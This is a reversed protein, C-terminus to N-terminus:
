KKSKKKKSGKKLKKPRKALKKKMIGAIKKKIKGEKFSIKAAKVSHKKPELSDSPGLELISLIEPRFNYHKSFDSQFDAHMTLYNKRASTFVSFSEYNRSVKDLEEENVCSAVSSLFKSNKQKLAENAMTIKMGMYHFSGLVSFIDHRLTRRAGAGGMVIDRKAVHDLFNHFSNFFQHPDKSDLVTLFHERGEEDNKVLAYLKTIIKDNGEMGIM